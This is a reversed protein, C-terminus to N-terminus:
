LTEDLMQKVIAVAKAYSAERVVDSLDKHGQIFYSLVKNAHKPYVEAFRQKTKCVSSRGQEDDDFLLLCKSNMTVILNLLRPSVIVRETTVNTVSIISGYGLGKIIQWLLMRDKNSKTIICLKYKANLDCKNLQNEGVVNYFRVGTSYPKYVQYCDNLYPYYICVENGAYVLEDGKHTAVVSQVDFHNLTDLTIGYQAFYEIDRPQLSSLTQRLPSTNVKHVLALRSILEREEDASYIKGCRSMIYDLYDCSKGYSGKAYKMNGMIRTTVDIIDGSFSPDGFDNFVRKGNKDIIGMSPKSDNRFPNIFVKRKAYCLLLQEYTLKVDSKGAVSVLESFMQIVTYKSIKYKGDVM